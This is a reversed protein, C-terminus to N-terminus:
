HAGLFSLTLVTASAAASLSPPQSDPLEDARKLQDQLIGLEASDTVEVLAM